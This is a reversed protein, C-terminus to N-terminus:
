HKVSRLKYKLRHRCKNMIESRKNILADPNGKLIELKESLCLDCTRAGCQYPFAQKHLSWKIEFPINQGKLNWIFKALCTDNKKGAHAFSSKHNALRAKFMPETAGLYQKFEGQATVDARYVISKAKCKGDLPCNGKNAAACNCQPDNQPTTPQNLLKKNHKAIISKMNPSCSYSIKLTNKNLIKHYIHQRTFHKKVIQIFKNGMNTETSANYPPNFWIIRRRRSRRRSPAPTTKFKIGDNFGSDKLAQDYVPKVKEFEEADCSISSIRREVM